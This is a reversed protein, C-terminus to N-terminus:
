HQLVGHHDTRPSNRLIEAEHQRVCSSCCYIKGHADSGHGIITCHCNECRPALLQIACEFSDFLRVIDGNKIEILRDSENGCVECHKM